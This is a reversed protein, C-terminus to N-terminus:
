AGELPPVAGEPDAAARPMRARLDEIVTELHMGRSGKALLVDGPRLLDLLRDAAAAHSECQYVAMRPNRRRAVEGARWAWDGLTALADVRSEAIAEGLKRHLPGAKMGLELMDACLMIRRGQADMDRLVELAAQMSRLNANYADNIVTVGDLRERSLRMAPPEYGALREAAERARMGVVTCVAVAALANMVNHRGPVPLSCPVNGCLRFRMGWERSEIREARIDAEARCGFTMVDCACWKRLWPTMADDANLVAMGNDPLEELLEAKAKAVGKLSHLGELHTEGINTVVGLVPRAIQALRAMEGAAGTGMELIAMKDDAEIQFISHPVGIDNNFNSPSKRSPFRGSLAHHTMEKTTTKGNSGTIGVVQGGWAAVYHRALDGLARRVDRVPICREESLSGPLDVHQSVVAGAAGKEFADPVFDHGDSNKGQLAFFLDGKRITRTDSSVGSASWGGKRPRGGVAGVIEM